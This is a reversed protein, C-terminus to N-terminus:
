ALKAIGQSIQIALNGMFNGESDYLGWFGSTDTNPLQHATYEGPVLYIEGSETHPLVTPEKITIVFSM